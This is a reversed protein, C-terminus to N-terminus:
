ELLDFTGHDIAAFAFRPAVACNNVEAQFEVPNVLWYYLGYVSQARYAEWAENFIPPTVGRARLADLYFQLLPREWERRELMDLSSVLFYTFDHSWPGKRVSQWDLLGPRGADDLYLNGLHPDTHLLCYPGFQDVKRLREMASEMRDRDHFLRSVALGRPLAMCQAYVDPQLRSRQYTGAQGEPLPDLAEVWGLEDGPVFEASLWWQAHLNALMELQAAAQEYTLTQQVRCFRASRADLDELIVIAQRRNDDWAAFYSRPVRVSQLRPALESYFRAELMYERYMLERHASFGGKVILTRPLGAREGAKDYTVHVRIKSATGHMAEGLALRRVAVDPHHARLAETLWDATIQEVAIPLPMM